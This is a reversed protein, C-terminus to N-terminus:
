AIRGPFCISDHHGDVLLVYADIDLRIRFHCVMHFLPHPHLHELVLNTNTTYIMRCFIFFQRIQLASAALLPYQLTMGARKVEDGPIGTVFFFHENM